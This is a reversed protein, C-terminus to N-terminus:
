LSRRPRFHPTRAARDHILQDREVTFSHRRDRCFRPQSHPRHLLAHAAVLGIM